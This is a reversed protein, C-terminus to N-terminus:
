DAREPPPTDSGRRAQRRGATALTGSIASARFKEIRYGVTRRPLGILEAIEDQSMRDVFYYIAIEQLDAPVERLLAHVTLAADVPMEAHAAPPASTSLIRRRRSTDRLLTLCLNTTVRRLWALRAASTNLEAEANLARVFVDQTIDKAADTDGLIARARRFIGRSHHRFLEALLHSTM